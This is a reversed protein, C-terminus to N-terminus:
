DKKIIKSMMLNGFLATKELTVVEGFLFGAISNKGTRLPNQVISRLGACGFILSNESSIFSAIRNTGETMSTTRLVLKRDKPLDAGSELCGEQISCHINRELRDSFTVCEFNDLPIDLMAQQKHFFSIANQWEGDPLVRVESIQREHGGRAELQLNGQDHVNMPEVVFDGQNVLLLSVEEAAPLIEGRDEGAKRAAGGGVIPIGGLISQCSQLFSEMGIPKAFVALGLKPQYDLKELVSLVELYTGSLVQGELEHDWYEQYNNSPCGWTTEDSYGHSACGFTKGDDMPSNGTNWFAIKWTSM